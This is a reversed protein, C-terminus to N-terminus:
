RDVSGRKTALRRRCPVMPITGDSLYRWLLLILKRTMAVLMIRRTRGKAARVARPVLRRARQGAPPAALARSVALATLALGSPTTGLGVPMVSRPSATDRRRGSIM